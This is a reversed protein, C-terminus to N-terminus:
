LLFFDPFVQSHRAFLYIISMIWPPPHADVSPLSIWRESWYMICAHIFWVKCCPLDVKKNQDSFFSFNQNCLDPVMRIFGLSYLFTHQGGQMKDQLGCAVCAGLEKLLSCRSGSTELTGLWGRTVWGDHYYLYIGVKDAWTSFFYPDSQIFM